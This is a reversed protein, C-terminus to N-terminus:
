KWPPQKRLKSDYNAIRKGQNEQDPHQWDPKTPSSKETTKSGQTDPGKSILMQVIKQLDNENLPARSSVPTQMLVNDVNEYKDVCNEKKANEYKKEQQSKAQNADSACQEDQSLVEELNNYSRTKLSNLQEYYTPTPSKGSKIIKLTENWQSEMIKQLQQAQQMKKMKMQEIKAKLAILEEKYQMLKIQFLKIEEQHKEEMLKIELSCKETLSQMHIAANKAVQLEKKRIEEKFTEEAKDLQNQFEKLKTQVLMEVQGQYFNRLESKNAELLEKTKNVEEKLQKENKSKKELQEILIKQQEYISSQQKREYALARQLSECEERMKSIENQCSEITGKCESIEQRAQHLLNINELLEIEKSGLLDNLQMNKNVEQCYNDKVTHCQSEISSLENTLKTCKNELLTIKGNNGQAFNIAKAAEKEHYIVTQRAEEIKAESQLKIAQMEKELEVKDKMSNDLKISVQNLIEKLQSLANDKAQDVKLAVTMKQQLELNRQHLETILMECHQRRLNEEHLKNKITSNNEARNPNWIDALSILELHNNPQYKNQMIKNNEKSKNITEEMSDELQKHMNLINMANSHLPNNLLDNNGKCNYFATAQTSESSSSTDPTKIKLEKKNTNESLYPVFISKKNLEMEPNKNKSVLIYDPVTSENDGCRWTAQKTNAIEKAMIEEEKSKIRCEIHKKQIDIEKLMEEVEDMQMNGNLKNDNRESFEKELNRAANYHQITKVKTLFQDIESLMEGGGENFDNTYHTRKRPSKRNSFAKKPSFSNLNPSAPLSNLRFKSPSKMPTSQTSHSYYLDDTSNYKRFDAM